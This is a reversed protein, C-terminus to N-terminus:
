LLKSIKNLIEELEESNARRKLSVRNVKDSNFYKPFNPKFSIRRKSGDMLVLKSKRLFNLSPNELNEYLLRLEEPELQEINKDQLGNEIDIYDKQFGNLTLYSKIYSDNDKIDAFIEDPMYNEMERKKMVHYSDNLALKIDNLLKIKDSAVEEESPYKKDSDIIVFARLYNYNQKPFSENNDFRKQMESLVNSINNGGGNIPILWGRELHMKIKQSEEKFNKVLCDFFFKDYEINELILFFTKSLIEDAEILSFCSDGENSMILQIDRKKFYISSKLSEDIHAKGSKRLGKYWNSKKIIEYLRDDGIYLAHRERSNSWIKDLIDIDNDSINSFIDENFSYVM